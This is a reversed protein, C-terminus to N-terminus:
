DHPMQAPLSAVVQLLIFLELSSVKRDAPDPQLDGETM